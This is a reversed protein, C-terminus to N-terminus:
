KAGVKRMLHQEILRITRDDILSDTSDLDAKTYLNCSGGGYLGSGHSLGNSYAVLEEATDFEVLSDFEGECVVIGRHKM